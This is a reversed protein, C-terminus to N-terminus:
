ISNALLNLARQYEEQEEKTPPAIKTGHAPVYNNEPLSEALTIMMRYHDWAAQVGPNTVGQSATPFLDMWIYDRPVRPGASINNARPELIRGSNFLNLGVSLCQDHDLGLLYMPEHMYAEIVQRVHQEEPMNTRAIVVLVDDLDVQGKVISAVCRGFSFGIKM